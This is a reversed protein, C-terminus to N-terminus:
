KNEKPNAKVLARLYGVAAEIVACDQETLPMPYQIFAGERGIIPLQGFGKPIKGTDSGGNGNESDKPPDGLPTDNKEATQKKRTHTRRARPKTIHPSVPFGCDQLAKVYFRISKTLMQGRPIGSGKFAKELEPLTGNEINVEWIISDYVGHLIEILVTEYEQESKRRARVLAGFGETVSEDKNALGMFCLGSILASHAAGSLNSVVHRDLKTPTTTDAFTEVTNKFTAYPMYAPTTKDKKGNM